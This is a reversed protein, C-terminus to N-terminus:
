GLNVHARYLELSDSSSDDTNFEVISGSALYLVMGAKISLRSVEDKDIVSGKLSAHGSGKLVLVISGCSVTPLTYSQQSPLITHEVEFEACM